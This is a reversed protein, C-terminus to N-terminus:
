STLNNIIDIKLALAFKSKIKGIMQEETDRWFHTPDLGRRRISAAIIIATRTSTDTFKAKAKRTSDRSKGAGAKAARQSLGERIIWKRISAVFKSAKGRAGGKTPKKFQYPSDGGGKLWGKVGKDIFKYYSNINIGISLIEGNVLIQTPIISDVLAGTSVRDAKNLNNRATLIYEEAIEYLATSIADLSIPQFSSEDEGILDLKNNKLARDQLSRISSVKGRPM